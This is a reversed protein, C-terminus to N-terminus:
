SLGASIVSRTCSLWINVTQILKKGVEYILESSHKQFHIMFIKYKLCHVQGSKITTDDKYILKKWNEFITNWKQWVCWM